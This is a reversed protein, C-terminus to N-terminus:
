SKKSAKEANKEFTSLVNRCKLMQNHYNKERERETNEREANAPECM